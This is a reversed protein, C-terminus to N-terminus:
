DDRPPRACRKLLLLVHQSRRVGFAFRV